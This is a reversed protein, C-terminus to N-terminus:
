KRALVVCLCMFVPVGTAGPNSGSSACFKEFMASTSRRMNAWAAKMEDISLEGDGDSDIFSALMFVISSM